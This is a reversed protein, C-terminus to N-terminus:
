IGVKTVIWFVEVFKWCVEWPHATKDKKLAVSQINTDMGGLFNLNKNNNNPQLRLGWHLSVQSTNPQSPPARM